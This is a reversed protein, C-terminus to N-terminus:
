LTGIRKKEEEIREREAIIMKIKKKNARYAKELCWKVVDSDHETWLAQKIEEFKEVDEAGIIKASVSKQVKQGTKQPKPGDQIPEVDEEICEDQDQGQEEGSKEFVYPNVDNNCPEEDDNCFLSGIGRNNGPM